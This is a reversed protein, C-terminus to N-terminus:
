GACVELSFVDPVFSGDVRNCHSFDSPREGAEQHNQIYLRQRSYPETLEEYMLLKDLIRYNAIDNRAARGVTMNDDEPKSEGQELGSADRCSWRLQSVIFDLWDSKIQLLKPRFDSLVTPDSGSFLCSFLKEPITLKRGM